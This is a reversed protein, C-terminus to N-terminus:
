APFSSYTIGEVLRKAIIEQIETDRVEDFRFTQRNPEKELIGIDVLDRVANEIESVDRGLRLALGDLDDTLAPNKHFLELLAVKVGTSLLKRLLTLEKENADLHLHNEQM